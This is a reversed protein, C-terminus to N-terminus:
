AHLTAPAFGRNKLFRTHRWHYYLLHPVLLCVPFFLYISLIVSVFIDELFIGQYNPLEKICSLLFAFRLVRDPGQAAMLPHSTKQDM